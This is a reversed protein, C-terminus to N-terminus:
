INCSSSCILAADISFEGGGITLDGINSRATLGPARLLQEDRQLLGPLSPSCSLMSRPRVCWGNDGAAAALAGDDGGDDGTGGCLGGDAKVMGVTDRWLPIVEGVKVEAASAVSFVVTVVGTDDSSSKSRM